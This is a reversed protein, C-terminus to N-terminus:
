LGPSYELYLMGGIEVNDFDRERFNENTELCYFDGGVKKPCGRLTKLPNNSCDFDGTVEEPANELTELKNHYINFDGVVKKIKFPIKTLGFGALYTSSNITVSGDDHREYNFIGFDEPIAQKTETLFQLVM